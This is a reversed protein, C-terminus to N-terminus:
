PKAGEPVLAPDGSEYYYSYDIGKMFMERDDIKDTLAGRLLARIPASDAPSATMALLYETKGIRSWDVCKKLSKKFILDLWIRTSRGNGERFPHAINMEVYKDAIEDFTSQPMQEIRALTSELFFAPAFHFNGKAIDVTRIQGAFDYLGGFLYAHIQRLSEVTGPTMKELLGSKFLAYAQARSQGDISDESYTFWKLFPIANRSPIAELLAPIAKQPFTDTLRSKGDPALLKFGKCKTLPEFGSKKLRNKLVYWYNRPNASGTVAAIIDVAAFRWLSESEDWVARIEKDDFFRISLKNQM